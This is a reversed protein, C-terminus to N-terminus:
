YKIYPKIFEILTKEPFVIDQIISQSSITGIVIAIVLLIGIILYCYWDLEDLSGDSFYYYYNMFEKVELKKQNLFKKILIAITLPIASGIVLWMISNCIDYTIIKNGLEQIYPIVNNSTWDIAIGFKDCVADLVKIVQESIEM